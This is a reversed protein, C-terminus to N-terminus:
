RVLLDESSHLFIEDEVYNDGDDGVELILQLSKEM